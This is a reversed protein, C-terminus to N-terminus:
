TRGLFGQSQQVDPVVGKGVLSRPNQKGDLMMRSSASFLHEAMCQQGESRPSPRLAPCPLLPSSCSTPPPGRRKRVGQLGPCSLPLLLFPLFFGCRTQTLSGAPLAPDQVPGRENPSPLLPYQCLGQSAWSPLPSLPQPESFTFLCFPQPSLLSSFSDNFHLISITDGGFCVSFLRGTSREVSTKCLSSLTLIHPLHWLRGLSRWSCIALLHVLVEALFGKM